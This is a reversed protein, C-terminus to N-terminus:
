RYTILNEPDSSRSQAVYRLRRYDGGKFRSLNEWDWITYEDKYTDGQSKHITICYASNFNSLIEDRTFSIEEDRVSLVIDDSISIVKFIENKSIDGKEKISKNAILPTGIALM